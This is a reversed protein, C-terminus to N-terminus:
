GDLDGRLLRLLRERVDPDLDEAYARADELGALLDRALKRQQSIDKAQAVTLERHVLNLKEREAESPYRFQLTFKKSKVEEFESNLRAMQPGFGLVRVWAKSRTIATFLRNRVASQNAIQDLGEHANVVYVMGAENGKARHIGTFTVSERGRAFFEAPSTDVGAMHNPVGAELLRARLKPLNNRATLGNPNVVIIDDFRLEDEGLNKVIEDVVWQNQEDADEFAQFHVLDPIPSHQELFTPSSEPTRALVVEEDPRLNGDVVAYGIDEWLGPSQFLQVLGSQRSTPPERYIGFGLAHATVLVPRSNRYCKQLVIDRSGTSADTTDFAVRPQGNSDMGFIVDPTPLSRGDLSQLEDYAYVLRRKDGVMFYCMRLFAPPQDQAEDVLIADFENVERDGSDKLAENCAWRFANANSGANAGASRFNYYPVGAAECYLSYIGSKETKGPSGWANLVRLMTWDPEAGTQEITFNRILRVFQDHLSHTNYTVAIRWDPHLAHLYAAKLALVITKGSGALGRIRQVGDVTQIVAESQQKDLTAISGELKVLRAGRSDSDKVIRPARGKGLASLTEIASLVQEFITTQAIEIPLGTVTSALRGAGALYYDEEVEVGDVAAGPAFTVATIAPILARKKVLQPHQLLRSQLVRVLEDQRAQFDGLETDEVLDFIVVGRDRDVLLADAFGVDPQAPLIPFGTFLEGELEPADSLADVLLGTSVPKSTSGRVVNLAM